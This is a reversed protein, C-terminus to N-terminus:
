EPQDLGIGFLVYRLSHVVGEVDNHNVNFIPGPPRGHLPRLKHCRWLPDDLTFHEAVHGTRQSRAANHCQIHHALPTGTLHDRLLEAAVEVIDEAAVGRGMAVASLLPLAGDEGAGTSGCLCELRARGIHISALQPLSHAPETEVFIVGMYPVDRLIRFTSAPPSPSTDTPTSTTPASM